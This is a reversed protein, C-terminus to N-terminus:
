KKKHDRSSTSAESQSRMRDIRRGVNERAVELAAIFVPLEEKGLACVDAEWWFSKGAMAVRWRDKRAQEARAEEEEEEKTMAAARTEKEDKGM